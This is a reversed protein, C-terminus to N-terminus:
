KISLIRRNGEEEVTVVSARPLCLKFNSGLGVESEVILHGNSQLAFGYVMSLGLGVGDGVEKTTYFPDFIKELMEPAIGLGTDEICIEIYDGSSVAEHQSAYLDDFTTNAVNIILKGGNPMADGANKVINVIALILQTDDIMPQWTIEAVKIVLTIREGLLQQLRTELDAFLKKIDVAVPTLMQQRSFAVLRHTLQAAHDITIKLKRARKLAEPNKHLTLELIDANGMMVALMNNFHHAVGGTLHGIAEMKQARSLQADTERIKEESQNLKILDESLRENMQNLADALIQLEDQKDFGVIQRDLILKDSLGELNVQHAFDSIKQLHRFVVIHFMFLIFISVLFTKLGQSLVIVIMRDFLRESVGTLSVAIELHGLKQLTGKDDYIMQFTHHKINEGPEVFTGAKHKIIGNELIRIGIVDRMNTINKLETALQGTDLKWLSNTVSRLHGIRINRVQNEIENLDRRYDIFLQLAVVLMTAVSSFLLIYILLRRALPRRPRRNYASGSPSNKM